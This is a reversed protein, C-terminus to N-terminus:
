LNVSQLILIQLRSHWRVNGIRNTEYGILKLLIADCMTWM